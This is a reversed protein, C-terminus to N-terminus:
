DHDQEEVEFDGNRHMVVRAHDGFMDLYIDSDFAHLFEQIEKAAAHYIDPLQWGAYYAVGDDIYEHGSPLNAEGGVVEVSIYLDVEDTYVGFTCPDGDCFYPTYQTWGVAHVMPLTEFAIVIGEQFAAKAEKTYDQKLEELRNKLQAVALADM